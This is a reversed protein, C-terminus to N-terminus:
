SIPGVLTHLAGAAGLGALLSSAIGALLGVAVGAGPGAAQGATIGAPIGAALGAFLGVVMALAVVILSRLSFLTISGDDSSRGSQDLKADVRSRRVTM